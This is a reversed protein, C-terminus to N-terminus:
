GQNSEGIDSASIYAHIIAMLLGGCIGGALGLLIEIM